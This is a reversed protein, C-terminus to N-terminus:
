RVSGGIFVMMIESAVLMGQRTLSMRHGDHVVWGAEVFGSLEGGHAKWVDVGYADRMAALDVGEALRLGMFLAEEQQEVRSLRRTDLRVPAGRTIREVYDATGPVNRWRIGDWTSHAGCGLGLWSGSQWYKLNHPRGARGPWTRSRTNSSAPPTSGARGQLGDGRGSRRGGGALGRAVDGRAATRESLDRPTRSAHEPATDVLADVSELWADLSQGPLWLMLDLSINDHGAARAESM